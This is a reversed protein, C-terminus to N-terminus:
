APREPDCLGRLTQAAKAPQGLGALWGALDTRLQPDDAIELARAALTVATDLDTGRSALLRALTVSAEREGAEDSLTRMEDVQGRLFAEEARPGVYRSIPMDPRVHELVIKSASDPAPRDLLEPPPMTRKTPPAGEPTQEWPHDPSSSSM